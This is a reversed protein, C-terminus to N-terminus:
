IDIVGVDFLEDLTFYLLLFFGPRQDLRAIICAEIPGGVAAHEELVGIVGYPHRILEHAGHLRVPFPLRTIDLGTLGTSGVLRPIQQAHNRFARIKAAVGAHLVVRRDIVPM